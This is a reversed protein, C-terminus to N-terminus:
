QGVRGVCARGMCAGRVLPQQARRPLPPVCVEADEWRAQFNRYRPDIHAVVDRAVYACFEALTVKADDGFASRVCERIFAARWGLSPPCSTARGVPVGQDRSSCRSPAAAWWGAKLSSGVAEGPCRGRCGSGVLVDEHPIDQQRRRHVPQSAGHRKQTKKQVAASEAPSVTRMRAQHGNSRVVAM